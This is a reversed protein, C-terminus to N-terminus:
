VLAASNKKADLFLRINTKLKQQWDSELNDIAWSLWWEPVQSIKSGKFKGFTVEMDVFTGTKKPQYGPPKQFEDSSYVVGTLQKGKSFIHHTTGIKEITLDEVRGFKETNGSLDIVIGKQKNPHQRTLRGVKQYHRALSLTPCSDIIMELEPYDFGVSLVNVNFVTKIKGARFDAIISAREKPKTQACVFASNPVRYSLLQAQKVSPVFVLKSLTSYTHCYKVISTEAQLGFRELSSETYEAGTTNIRLISMDPREVIYELPSWYQAAIEQIQIIHAYGNYINSNHMMVLKAGGATTRLRFPTATLGLIKLQPNAALFKGFMSEQNPPYLHAEDIILATFNEFLDAVNVISGITAFTVKAIKKRGASASFVDADSNYLCYKAFNQELLEKSPQIVLVRSELKAAIAAIIISKGAATPAVIIKPKQVNNNTFFRIGANVCDTQYPRLTIM